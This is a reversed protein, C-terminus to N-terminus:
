EGRAPRPRRPKALAAVAERLAAEPGRADGWVCDRLTVFDAGQAALAPLSALPPNGEAVAPPEMLDTWWALIPDDPDDETQGAPYPGFAIYDAGAEGAQMAADRSFACSVGLQLLDGLAARVNALSEGPRIHVGDCGSDRALKPDGRLILAVGRPATIPRIQAIAAPLHEPNELWLQFAPIPAADLVAALTRAFGPPLTAPSILYPLCADDM